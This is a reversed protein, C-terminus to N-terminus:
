DRWQSYRHEIFKEGGLKKRIHEVRGPNYLSRHTLTWERTKEEIQKEKEEFRKVREEEIEEAVLEAPGDFMPLIRNMARIYDEFSAIQRMTKRKNMELKEFLPAKGFASALTWTCAMRIDWVRLNLQALIRLGGLSSHKTLDTLEDQPLHCYWRVIDGLLRQNLIGRIDYRSDLDLLLEELDKRLDNMIYPVLEIIFTWEEPEMDIKRFIRIVKQLNSASLWPKRPLFVMETIMLEKSHQNLPIREAQMTALQDYPNGKRIAAQLYINEIQAKREEEPLDFTLITMTRDLQRNDGIRMYENALSEQLNRDEFADNHMDSTVIDYLLLDKNEKAVYHVLKIFKSDQLKMRELYKLALGSDCYNGQILRKLLERVAWPGVEINLIKMGDIITDISFFTTAFIRACTHDDLKGSGIGIRKELNQVLEKIPDPKDMDNKINAAAVWKGAKLLKLRFEEMSKMDIDGKSLLFKHWSLGDKISLRPVIPYIKYSSDYFPQYSTGTAVVLDMLQETTPKIWKLDEHYKFDKKVIKCYIDDEVPPKEGTEDYVKKMYRILEEIQDLRIIETWMVGLTYLNPVDKIPLNSFEKWMLRVGDKGLRRQKTLFEDIWRKRIDDVEKGTSLYRYGIRLPSWKQLCVRIPKM